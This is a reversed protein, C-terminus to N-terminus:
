SLEPLRRWWATATQYAHGLRLLTAEAFPRGILQFAMPLGAATFGCPVSLAPLGLFSIPRTMASIRMVLEVMRADAGLGIEELRPAPIPMTPVILADVEGLAGEVFARTYRERLSIVEIYRTSPQYLGVEIRRRVQPQYDAARTRLWDRHITAAEASLAIPWILNMEDHGPVEVPRAAVGLDAFAAQAATLAGDVAPDLDDYYYSTPVGLKLAGVPAELGGEYDPVARKASTPDAPDHGAIAGLIRATDRVTRTLPGVCDFSFSLPLIGSRSVRTQTPKLGVVGSMGSPIRISGGTDSGLAGTLVGAAVAAGSGSSSGGPAHATNWPNHCDGWHANHGTPGVAFESMNLGGLDLAGAADLRSLVTATTTPRFDRRIASGATSLMGQRYYMDKHALPAGALPGPDEGRARKADVARAQALAAEAELHIFANLAPQAAEARDIAARAVEEASVDGARVREATDALTWARFAESM